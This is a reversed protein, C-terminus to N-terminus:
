RVYSNYLGINFYSDSILKFLKIKIIEFHNNTVKYFLFLFISKLLMINMNIGYIVVGKVVARAVRDICRAFPREITPSSNLQDIM